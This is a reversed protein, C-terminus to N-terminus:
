EHIDQSDALDLTQTTCVTQYYINRMRTKFESMKADSINYL